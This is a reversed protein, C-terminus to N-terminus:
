LQVPFQTSKEPQMIVKYEWNAGAPEFDAPVVSSSTDNAGPVAWNDAASYFALVWFAICCNTPGNYSQGCVDVAM